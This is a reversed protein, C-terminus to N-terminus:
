TEATELVGTWNGEMSNKKLAQRIASPPAALKTQDIAAGAARLEGFRLGRLLLSPAPSYPDQQRLFKSPALVQAAPDESTAVARRPALAPAPAAAATTGVTVEAVAEVAAATEALPPPPPPEDPEKERKKILLTHVTQGVEELSTQLSRFSP